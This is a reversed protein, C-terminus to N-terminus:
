RARNALRATESARPLANDIESFLSELDGESIGGDAETTDQSPLEDPDVPAPSSVGRLRAIEALLDRQEIPKAVYGNMGAALYRERDGTMADATLAIIPIDSWAKGSNRIRELTELGDLVPMHIDLLIVDFAREELAQLAELGNVAERVRYGQPELFLRGVRRNVPHDDVLLVDKGRVVRSPGAQQEIARGQARRANEVPRASFTLTFTSGKGEQSEVFVDGGMLQALRRTIVLGLGTGGFRRSMSSDAQSFLAFVQGVIDASMGIGTDAVSISVLMDEARQQATVGIRLEGSETFKVANSVLNSLCQELRVPDLALFEPVNGAIDMRFGLGKAATKPAWSKRLRDMLAHFDQEVLALEMRGAEMKSLDLVDDLLTKLAQGSDLIARAQEKSPASLPRQVLIQAMGLIGNLPTRIEHSMNALFSSKAQNAADAQQRAAKLEKERKRDDSIDVSVAVYRGHTMKNYVTRYIRGGIRFDISQGSRLKAEIYAAAELLQEETADPMEVRLSKM